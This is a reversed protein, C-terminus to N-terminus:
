GCAEQYSIGAKQPASWAAAPMAPRIRGCLQALAAAPTLYGVNWTRLTGDAGASALTTGDPSFALSDVAGDGTAISPGIQQGTSISWFQITGNNNGVALTSGDPSVAAATARDGIPVSVPPRVQDQQALSWVVVQGAHTVTIVNGDPTFGIALLAGSAIGTEGPFAIDQTIEGLSEGTAADFVFVQGDYYGAAIRTGDGNYVERQFAPTSDSMAILLRRLFSGDAPQPSAVFAPSADALAVLLRRAANASKM